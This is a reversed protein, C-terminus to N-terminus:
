INRYSKKRINTKQLNEISLQLTDITTQQVKNYTEITNTYNTKITQAIHQINKTYNEIITAIHQIAKTDSEITKAINRQLTRYKNRNHEIHTTTNEIPKRSNVIFNQLKEITIIIALVIAIVIAFVITIVITFSITILITMVINVLIAIVTNIVIAIIIICVITIVRTM